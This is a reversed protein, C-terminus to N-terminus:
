HPVVPEANLKNGYFVEDLHEDAIEVDSIIVFSDEDVAEDAKPEKQTM